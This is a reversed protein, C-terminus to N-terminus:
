FYVAATLRVLGFNADWEDSSAAGTEHQYVIQLRGDAGLSLHPTLFSAAGLEGYGGADWLHPGNASRLGAIGGLGWYPRLSEGSARYHRMGIQADASQFSVSRAPLGPVAPTSLHEVSGSLGFLWAHEASSFRILSAAGFQAGFGAEAAWEGAHPAPAAQQSAAARPLALAVVTVCCAALHRFSNATMIV